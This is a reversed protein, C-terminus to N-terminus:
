ARTLEEMNKRAMELQWNLGFISFDEMQYIAENKLDIFKKFDSVFVPIGLVIANYYLMPKRFDKYVPIVDTELGIKKSIDLSIATLIEFLEDDSSQEKAFVVAIDIDSDQGPFGRAWSGYLFAMNISFSEAKEKFYNRVDEIIAERKNMVNFIVAKQSVM